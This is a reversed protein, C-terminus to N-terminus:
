SVRDKLANSARGQAPSATTYLLAAARSTDSLPAHAASRVGPLWLARGTADMVVPWNARQYRPVGAEALVDRVKRTGGSGYPTIRLGIGTARVHLPGVLEELDFVAFRAGADSSNRLMQLADVAPVESFQVTGFSPWEVEQGPPLAAQLGVMGGEQELRQGRRLELVGDSLRATWGAGLHFVRSRGSRSMAYILPRIAARQPVRSCSHEAVCLRQLTLIAVDEDLRCIHDSRVKLDSEGESGHILVGSLVEDVRSQLEDLYVRARDGEGLTQAVWNPDVSQGMLDSRIRNRQLSLDQNSADELWHWAHQRACDELEIKSFGLLPRTFVGNIAAISAARQTPVGEARRLLITELQDDRHHGLYVRTAQERRAVYELWGRRQERAAAERGVARVRSGSPRRQARYFGVGLEDALDRVFAGERAADAPRWGHDLWTLFCSSGQATLVPVMLRALMMSDLGGSCAIGASEGPRPLLDRGVALVGKLKDHLGKM